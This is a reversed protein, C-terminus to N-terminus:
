VEEVPQLEFSDMLHTDFNGSRFRDDNLLQQHLPITTQIGEIIFEDLARIMKTRALERTQGRVILKAILSDYYQSIRYGSYVHTDVRVGHGGPPHFTTITGPSPCYNRFPNEANIRCEIAHGEIPIRSQPIKEGMAVRLQFAILDSDTVEETVPHEVQIRTNMEIFYFNNDRDLLFEVTGAGEYAVSKAGCVAAQGMRDRLAEDVAPSPSEEILKQHRRQISCDREGFHIVSGSGDGLIQIEVHRSENFYKELYVDPNGFAAESESRAAEYQRVFSEEDYVIRMGRGGGGASAKILVPYGIESALRIGDKAREIVDRSGPIVPVGAQRMTEKAVRKDGMRRITEHSPGIFKIQHDGCIACFDANEALFGYGPHIADAGTVEAASIIRDPRLYSERSDPPGICVAEDAFRVHLSDRDATSYVAVTKLGLEHCTRIIRLAIEGRNAILVKNIL